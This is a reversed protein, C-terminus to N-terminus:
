FDTQIKARASECDVSQVVILPRCEEPGSAVSAPVLLSELSQDSLKLVVLDINPVALTDLVDKVLDPGVDDYVGCRLRRMIEGRCNGEVVEIGICNPRKVKQLGRPPV